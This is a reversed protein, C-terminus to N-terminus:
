VVGDPPCGTLLCRRALEEPFGAFHLGPARYVSSTITWVDRGNRGEHSPDIGNTFGDTRGGRNREGAQKSGDRGKRRDAFPERLAAADYFYRQEKSLLFIFEHSRTPRDTVSEPMPNPKSNHTIIGSALAFVHPEDEVGVDYVERCRSKRIEVIEEASKCNWHGALRIEGRFSPFKRGKFAAISLKLELHIGLRSCLTRLDRELNYNRCFGLRWRRNSKDYHGDGSLYGDLIERLFTNSYSWCATSLHKDHATAGSILEDILSVLVKGYLRVDMINGTVTRTASGGYSEAISKLREWRCDEKSHGAIQITDESRSGEAIYLGALWAADKGIHAPAKQVDPGPLSVRKLKDGVVLQSAKLLGRGTPFQHTETCGIREGSRLVIELERGSRKAKSWGLVQTWKKGNWLKVTEPKLRAADRLMMPMDGKQTRAYIWIGGSLCWVIDSRLYWGEAQLAMAVRWPVGALDKTKFGEPVPVPPILSGRNTIQKKSGGGRGGGCYSDGLVLWLTGRPKLVRHIGQFVGLLAKVYEQPSRENGLQGEMGYDRLSWYPPSTICCDVSEPAMEMLIAQADGTLLEIM